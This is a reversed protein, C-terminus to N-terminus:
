GCRSRDAGEILSGKGETSLATTSGGEIAAGGEGGAGVVEQHRRAKGKTTATAKTANVSIRTSRRAKARCRAETFAAPKRAKLKTKTSASSVESLKAVAM